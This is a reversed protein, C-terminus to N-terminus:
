MEIGDSGVPPPPPAPPTMLGPVRREEEIVPGRASAELRLNRKAQTPSCPNASGAPENRFGSHVDIWDSFVEISPSRRKQHSRM